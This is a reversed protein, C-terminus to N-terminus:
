NKWGPNFARQGLLVARGPESVALDSAAIDQWENSDDNRRRMLAEGACRILRAADEASEALVCAPGVALSVPDFYYLKM